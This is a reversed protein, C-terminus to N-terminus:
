TKETITEKDDQIEEIQARANIIRVPADEIGCEELITAKIIGMIEELVEPDEVEDACQCQHNWNQIFDQLEMLRKM